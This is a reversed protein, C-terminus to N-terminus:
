GEGRNARYSSMTRQYKTSLEERDKPEVINRLGIHFAEYAADPEKMKLATLNIIRIYIEVRKPDIQVMEKYLRLAEEFNEEMIRSEAISFNLNKEKAPASSFIISSIPSIFLNFLPQLLIFAGILFLFLGFISFLTIQNFFFRGIIFFPLAILFRKILQRILLARDERMFAKEEM